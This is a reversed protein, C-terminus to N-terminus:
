TAPITRPRRIPKFPCGDKRRPKHGAPLGAGIGPAALFMTTASQRKYGFARKLRRRSGTRANGRNKIKGSAEALVKDLIANLKATDRSAGKAPKFGTAFGRCERFNKPRDTLKWAQINQTFGASHILAEM